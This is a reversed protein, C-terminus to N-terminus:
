PAGGWGGVVVVVGGLIVIVILNTSAINHTQTQPRRCRGFPGARIKAGGLGGVWSPEGLTVLRGVWGGLLFLM